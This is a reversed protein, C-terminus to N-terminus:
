GKWEFGWCIISTTPEIPSHGAASTTYTLVADTAGVYIPTSSGGGVAHVGYSEFFMPPVVDVGAVQLRVQQAHRTSVTCGMLAIRFGSTPAWLTTATQAAVTVTATKTTPAYTDIPNDASVITVWALLASAIALAFGLRRM